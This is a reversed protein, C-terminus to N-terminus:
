IYLSYVLVTVFAIRIILRVNRFNLNSLENNSSCYVCYALFCSSGGDLLDETLLGLFHRGGNLLRSVLGWVGKNWCEITHLIYPFLSNEIVLDMCVFWLLMILFAAVLCLVYSMRSKVIRLSFMICLDLVTDTLSYKLLTRDGRFKFFGM